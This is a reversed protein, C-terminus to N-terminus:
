NNAYPSCSTPYDLQSFQRDWDNGETETCVYEVQKAPDNETYVFTEIWDTQAQGFEVKIAEKCRSTISVAMDKMFVPSHLVNSVHAYGLTQSLIFMVRGKQDYPSDINDEYIQVAVGKESLQRLVSSLSAECAPTRTIQANVPVNFLFSGAVSGLILLNKISNMM